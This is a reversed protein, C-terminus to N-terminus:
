DTNREQLVALLRGAPLLDTGGAGARVASQDAIRAPWIRQLPPRRLSGAGLALCDVFEAPLFISCLQPADAGCRTVSSTVRRQAMGAKRYCPWEQSHEKM